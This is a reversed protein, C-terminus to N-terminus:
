LYAKFLDAFQINLGIPNPDNSVLKAFENMVYLVFKTPFNTVAFFILIGVLGVVLVRRRNVYKREMRMGHKARVKNNM